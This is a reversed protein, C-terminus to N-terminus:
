TGVVTGHRTAGAAFAAFAEFAFVFHDPVPQNVIGGAVDTGETGVALVLVGTRIVQLSVDAYMM